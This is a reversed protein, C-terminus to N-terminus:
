TQLQTTARCVEELGLLFNLPRSRGLPRDIERAILSSLEASDFASECRMSGMELRDGFAERYTPNQDRPPTPSHVLGLRRAIGLKELLHLADRRRDGLRRWLSTRELPLTCYGDNHALEAAAPWAHWIMWRLWRADRKAARPLRFALDLLRRSFLPLEPTASWTTSFIVVSAWRRLRETIYLGDLRDLPDAHPLRREREALVDIVGRRGDERFEPSWIREPLGDGTFRYNVLRELRSGGRLLLRAREHKSWYDRFCEGGLGWLVTPQAEALAQTWRNVGRLPHVEGDSLLATSRVLARWDDISLPSEEIFEWRLDLAGAVQRAVVADSSDARGFTVFRAACGSRHALACVLRSDMGGTLTVLPASTGALRHQLYAAQEAVVKEATEALDGSQLPEGSPQWWRSEHPGNADFFLRTGADVRRVDDFLSLDGLCKGATTTVALSRPSLRVPRLCGIATASSSLWAGRADEAVYLPAMGWPDVASALRRQSADWYLVVYLGDVDGLPIEGDRETHERWADLQEANLALTSAGRCVTGFALLWDGAAGVSVVPVLAGGSCWALHCHPDRQEHWSAGERLHALQSGLDSREALPGREVRVVFM